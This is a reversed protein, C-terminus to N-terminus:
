LNEKIWNNFKDIEEKTSTLGHQEAYSFLLNEVDEKNYTDKFRNLVQVTVQSTNRNLLDNVEEKNYTNKILKM